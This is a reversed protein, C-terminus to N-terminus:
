NDCKLVLGSSIEAMLIKQSIYLIDIFIVTLINERQNNFMHRIQKAPM